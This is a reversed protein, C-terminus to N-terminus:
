SRNVIFYIEDNLFRQEELQLMEELQNIRECVANWYVLREDAMAKIEVDIVIGTNEDDEHSWTPRINISDLALGRAEAEQIAFTCITHVLQEHGQLRQKVELSMPKINKINSFSTEVISTTIQRGEFPVITEQRQQDNESLYAHLPIDLAFNKPFYQKFDFPVGPREHSSFLDLVQREMHAPLSYLRLIEADIQKLLKYATNADFSFFLSERSLSEVAQFYAHVTEVVRQIATDTIQPIPLARIDSELIDRKSTHTYIYANTFPSNCLAWLFELPYSASLPRITLFRKTVAHGTRDIIAKLRWPNRRVRAANLLIQPVGTTTGMGPRRIVMSDVNIWIEPPQGHIQLTRSIKDFGLVAGHFPKQSVTHIGAPLNKHKFEIGRGIQAINRLQHLSRCWVWVDELDPVRMNAKPDLTFHQQPILRDTTSIYSAKFRDVDPERVWRYRVKGSAMHTRPHKRGLVIASEAGSFTFIRDPLLCIEALEFESTMFRRLSITNKSDLFSQPVVVGFVSGPQMHILTRSLIEATKNMYQLDTGQRAYEQREKDSFNGFPPNALLITSRKALSEILGGIFMDASRVSWGDPHPNDALTLSLRAIEIAFPDIDIGSLRQKVYDHSSQSATPEEFLEKLLRMVAVLFTAPGCAPEFVYRKDQPIEAIWPALGWIIYDVLYSPTSHIGLLSRTKASVFTSEYVYALAEITLHGLYNFRVFTQAAEALAAKEAGGIFPFTQFTGYYTSIVSFTREINLLDLSTFGPVNKDHLIKAALLWFIVQLLKQNTGGMLDQHLRGIVDDAVQEVLDHLAKGMEGEVLPMLGSDVFSLQYEPSFRGRTKARYINHPAFDKQHEQFFRPLASANISHIRTPTEPEQKWWQLSDEYCVFMVPAGLDRHERLAIEPDGNSKIIALCASRVDTPEHAFAALPVTKVSDRTGFRYDLRLLSPQYGCSQLLPKL